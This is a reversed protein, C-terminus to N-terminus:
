KWHVGTVELGSKLTMINNLMLYNSHYLIIFSYHRVLLFDYITKRIAGNEIIFTFYVATKYCHTLDIAFHCM